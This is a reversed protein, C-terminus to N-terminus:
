NITIKQFKISALLGLLSFMVLMMFVYQYGVIGPYNDILYGMIPTVFIDPTYGVISIIGVATGTIEVPIKGENFVAFYLARIAYTGVATMILSLLFIINMTSNIIGLSFVLAGILMISFGIIILKVSSTKDASLGITICVLPRLYLQLAGIKAAEIQDYLMVQSAYLSYIDTLKYGVYASMIIMMMLWVSQIKLVSKINKISNISNNKKIDNEKETRMFYLVLFGIIIIIFSSFLIVYRFAEQRELISAANIKTKLALSFIFVTISGMSAAVIGRGGDLFGFAKGQNKKGGWLRTAKIMAGWFLFVTTFGWYAYLIQLTFFSPFTSMVFGGLATSFLATAMLKGPSYKDAVIGGYLYSILAVIGYISFLSGLQFNNLDFIDLFTPRFVRALVYTLIYISEGALILLIINYFSGTQNKYIYKGKNNNGL